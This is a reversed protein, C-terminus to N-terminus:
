EISRQVLVNLVKKERDKVLKQILVVVISATAAIIAAWIAPNM